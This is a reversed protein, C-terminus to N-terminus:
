KHRPVLLVLAYYMAHIKTPHIKNKQTRKSQGVTALRIAVTTDRVTKPVIKIL